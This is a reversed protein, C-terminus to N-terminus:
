GIDAFESHTDVYEKYKEGLFRHEPMALLPDEEVLRFAAQRAEALLDEDKDLDALRFSSAIGSQEKGLVNGVGRLSADVRSLYFGDSSAEMAQLREMAEGAVKDYLLCCWSPWQGRGVRGRLQHLQALGFREAHAIVIVSANPVDVGVEIVTTGVLIDIDGDRFADMVEAKQAAPMRGHVLGLRFGPFIRDQLQRYGMTAAKLDTKESEEVLPYVIYAQRGGEIERRLLELVEQKRGHGYCKTTIPQRGEPLEDIVTVDLDGFTGMTLTRPIPTATMLLVHPRSAKEQLARRQVVGFRHQEDIVVLGLRRFVVRDQIVAHTGVVIDLTGEMLESLVSEREGAPQGGTLLGIRLGLTDAYKKLGLWHQVALIETPVMMAAQLGNDFALAMAFMAVLTKGSGVDGQLLRHMQQGSCLDAYIERVARKQATTLEFPLSAYLAATKEGSRVFRHVGAHHKVQHRRLAFYLQAVFLEEWKLRHLAKELMERSEPLHVQRCAEAGGLLSYRTVIEGPLLEGADPPHMRFAERICAQLRRSDLGAKRLGESEPYIPMIDAHRPAAGEELMEYDPHTMQPRGSFFSVKGFVAMYRGPQMVKGLWAEGRFWLLELTGSGDSLMVRFRRTRGAGERMVRGVSGCVTVEDGEHLRDISSIRSRDLYRRPYHRYLDGITRVGLLALAKSKKEGVGRLAKVPITEVRSSM